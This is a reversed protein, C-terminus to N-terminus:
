SIMLSEDWKSDYDSLYDLIVLGIGSVGELLSTESTWKKEVGSWQKYGAFGNKHIAKELGDQIWFDKTKKFNLLNTEQYARYFIQANGYSGHCISADIVMSNKSATRKSAHNLIKVSINKLEYDKLIISAYWLRIAIGLDGYCWALRRPGKNEPNKSVWSPFCSFSEFGEEKTNLIYKISGVLIKETKMRFDDYQNLKTLIGVISSIGHSLSLNYGKENSNIDLKSIWKYKGEEDKVGKDSLLDIFKLLIFKYKEKLRTLKTTKYRALFYYAHGLAGHLFDYYGDQMNSIMVSELFEDLQTLLKDNDFDIFGERKLHDLTWGFGAIGSCYTTHNYGDNIREICNVLIELGLKASDNNDLYKSYYFKFMSLGSLGILVGIEEENKYTNSIIEDIEELKVHLKKRVLETKKTYCNM